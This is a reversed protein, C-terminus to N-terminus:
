APSIAEPGSRSTAQCVEHLFHDDETAHLREHQARAFRKKYTFRPKDRQYPETADKRDLDRVWEPQGRHASFFHAEDSDLLVVLYTPEGYWRELLPLLFPEQTSSWVTRSRSTSLFSM